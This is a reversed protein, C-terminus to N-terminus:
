REKGKLKTIEERINERQSTGYWGLAERRKKEMEKAIKKFDISANIEEIANKVDNTFFNLRSETKDLIEAYDLGDKANHMLEIIDAFNVSTYFIGNDKKYKEWQANKKALEAFRKMFEEKSVPKLKARYEQRKLETEKELRKREEECKKEYEETIKDVEKQFLAMFSTIAEEMENKKM